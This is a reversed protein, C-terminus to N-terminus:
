PFNLVVRNALLRFQVLHFQLAHLLVLVQKGVLDVVEGLFVGNGFGLLFGVAFDYDTLNLRVIRSEHWILLFRALRQQVQSQLLVLRRLEVLGDFFCGFHVQEVGVM